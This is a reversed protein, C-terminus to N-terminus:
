PSCYQHFKLYYFRQSCCMPEVAFCLIRLLVRIAYKGIAYMELAVSRNSNNNSNQKLETFFEVQSYIKDANLMNSIVELNRVTTM